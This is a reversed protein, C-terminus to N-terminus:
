GREAEAVLDTHLRRQVAMISDGSSKRSGRAFGDLPHSM